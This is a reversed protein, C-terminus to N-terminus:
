EEYLRVIAMGVGRIQEVLESPAVVKAHNGFGLIWRRLDIDQLSWRPLKVQFRNPHDPDPTKSLSFLSNQAKSPNSGTLKPSMKMQAIPFRQTGESIFRFIYDTFWLEVTICVSDRNAPAKSLFHRQDIASQGLHLGGCAHYLAQLKHLAKEQDRRDRKLSQAYGRFLRDLREFQM